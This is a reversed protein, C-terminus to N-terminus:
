GRCSQAVLPTVVLQEAVTMTTIVGAIVLAAGALQALSLPQGLSCWDSCYVGTGSQHLHGCANRWDACYGPEVMSLGAGFRVPGNGGIAVAVPANEKALQAMGRALSTAWHKPSSRPTTAPKEMCAKLYAVM